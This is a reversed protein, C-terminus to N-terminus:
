NPKRMVTFGWVLMGGKSAAVWAELGASMREVFADSFQSRKEMLRQRITGYHAAVNTSHDHFAEAVLGHQAALVRDSAVTGLRILKLRELVRTLLPMGEEPLLDAQMIDAYVFAGGPKLIRAVEAFVDGRKPGAHLLSDISYVADVSANPLSTECFSEPHIAILDQMKEAETVRANDENEKESIEICHVRCGHSRAFLRATGGYAAGLDAVVKGPGLKVAGNVHALLREVTTHCADELCPTPETDYSGIHIHVSGWLAKYFKFADESSYYAGVADEPGDGNSSYAYNSSHKGNATAAQGNAMGNATTHSKTYGPKRCFVFLGNAYELVHEVELGFNEMCSRAEEPTWWHTTYGTCTVLTNNELRSGELSGCLQPVNKYFTEVAGPLHAAHWFGVIFVGDDTLVNLVQKSVAERVQVPFIGFSNGVCTIIEFKQQATVEQIVTADHHILNVNKVGAKAAEQQAHQIFSANNDVGWCRGVFPACRIVHEGTGCAIDLLGVDRGPWASAYEKVLEVQKSDLASFTKLTMENRWAGVACASWSFQQKNCQEEECVVKTAPM